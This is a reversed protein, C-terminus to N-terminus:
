QTSLAEKFYQRDSFDISAENASQLCRARGELTLVSINSYSPSAAAVNGLFEKCLHELDYRRVSPGSSITGLIQRVGEVSQEHTAAALRAVAAMNSKARELNIEQNNRHNVLLIVFSPLVAIAILALLWTRLRLNSLAWKTYAQPTQTSM